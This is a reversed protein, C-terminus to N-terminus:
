DSSDDSIDKGEDLKLGHKEIVHVVKKLETPSVYSHVELTVAAKCPITLQLFKTDKPDLGFAKVLDIISEDPVCIAM